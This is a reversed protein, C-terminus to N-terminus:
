RCRVIAARWSAASYVHCHGKYQVPIKSSVALYTFCDQWIQCGYNEGNTGLVLYTPDALVAAGSFDRQCQYYALLWREVQEGSADLFSRFVTRVNKFTNLKHLQKPIFCSNTAHSWYGDGSKAMVLKNCESSIGEQTKLASAMGKTMISRPATTSFPRPPQTTFGDGKKALYYPLLIGAM